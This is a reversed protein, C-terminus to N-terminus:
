NENIKEKALAVVQVVQEELTINTTDIEIADEAMKLPSDVRTSDVLDRDQLNKMISELPEDIGKTSLEKQRRVARIEMEATMFVKLEADPFVVTGIDRGDMVVGKNLGIEQQQRVMKRRVASIASVESVNENVERSRIELDVNEGNLLISEDVFDISVHNLHDEVNNLDKIDAGRNLLYLTVARYMGGSDIFTYGLRSAVQKATSSKGCASYGDIAIVIKKLDAIKLRVLFRNEM